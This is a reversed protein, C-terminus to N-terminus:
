PRSCTSDHKKTGQCYSCTHNYSCQRRTCSGKKSMFITCPKNNKRTNGRTKPAPPLMSGLPAPTAKAKSSTFIDREPCTSDGHVLSGCINCFATAEKRHASLVVSLETAIEWPPPHLAKGTSACHSRIVRDYLHCGLPSMANYAQFNFFNIHGRDGATSYAVKEEASRHPCSPGLQARGQVFIEGPHAFETASAMISKKENKTTLYVSGSTASAEEVNPVQGPQIEYFHVLKGDVLRRVVSPKLNHLSAFQSCHELFKSKKPKVNDESSRSRKGRSRGRPTKSRSRPRRKKSKKRQPSPSPSSSSSSSRSPSRIRRKSKKPTKRSPKRPSGSEFILQAQALYRSGPVKVRKSALSDIVVDLSDGHADIASDAVAVCARAQAEPIARWKKKIDATSLSSSSSYYELSM